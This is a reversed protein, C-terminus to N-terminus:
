KLLPILVRQLATEKPLSLQGSKSQYELEILQLYIVRIINQNFKSNSSLQKRFNNKLYWLFLDYMNQDIIERYYKIFTPLNHPKISNLCKLIIKDAFFAFIKAKSFIKLQSNNLAKNQWLYIKIQAPIFINILKTQIPKPLSFFNDFAIIKEGQLLSGGNVFNNIQNFDYNKPDTHLIESDLLQNIQNLYENRSNTQNDGHFITIM